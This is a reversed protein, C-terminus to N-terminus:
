YAHLFREPGFEEAPEGEPWIFARSHIKVDRRLRVAFRVSINAPLACTRPRLVQLLQRAIWAEPRICGNLARPLRRACLVKNERPLEGTRM